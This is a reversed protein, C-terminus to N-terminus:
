QIVPKVNGQTVRKLRNLLEDWSVQRNYGMVSIAPIGGGKVLVYGQPADEVGGMEESGIEAGIEVLLLPPNGLRQQGARQLAFVVSLNRQKGRRGCDSRDCLACGVRAAANLAPVGTGLDLRPLDLSERRDREDVVRDLSRFLM